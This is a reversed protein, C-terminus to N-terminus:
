TQEKAYTSLPTGEQMAKSIFRQISRKFSRNEIRILNSYKQLFMGLSSGSSILLGDKDTDDCYFYRDHFDFNTVYVQIRKFIGKRELDEAIACITKASSAKPPSKAGNVQTRSLFTFITIERDSQTAFLELILSMDGELLYPDIIVISKSNTTDFAETIRRKATAEEYGGLELMPVSTLPDYDSDQDIRKKRSAWKSM